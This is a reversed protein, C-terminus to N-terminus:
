AFVNSLASEHQERSLVECLGERQEVDMEVGWWDANSGPQKFLLRVGDKLPVVLVEPFGSLKPLIQKVSRGRMAKILAPLEALPVRANFHRGGRPGLVDISARDHDYDGEFFRVGIYGNAHRLEM